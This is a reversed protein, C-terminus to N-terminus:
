LRTRSPRYLIAFALAGAIGGYLCAAKASRADCLGDFWDVTWVEAAVIAAVIPLLPLSARRRGSRWAELAGYVTLGVLVGSLGGHSRVRLSLLFLGAGVGAACLLVAGPRLHPGYAAVVLAAVGLTAGLRLWTGHVLHCTLARWVQGDLLANREYRLAHQTAAGALQIGACVAGVALLALWPRLRAPVARHAVGQV